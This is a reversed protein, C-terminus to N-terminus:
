TARLSRRSFLGRPLFAFSGLIVIFPLVPNPGYRPLLLMWATQAAALAYAGVITGPISRLGGLAVAALASLAIAFVAPMGLFFHASLVTAVGGIAAMKSSWFAGLTITWEVDVGAARAAAANAAVARIATGLPTLSLTLVAAVLALVCAAALTMHEEVIFRGIHFPPIAPLRGPTSYRLILAASLALVAVSAVITRNSGLAGAPWVRAPWLAVRDIVAGALAGAVIAGLVALWLPRGAAALDSLAVAGVVFAASHAFNFSGSVSNGLSYGFALLAYITGTVVISAVIALAETL